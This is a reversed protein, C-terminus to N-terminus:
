LRLAGSFVLRQALDCVPYSGETEHAAVQFLERYFNVVAVVGARECEHALHPVIAAIELDRAISRQEIVLELHHQEPPLIRHAVQPVKDAYDHVAQLPHFPHVDQASMLEVERRDPISAVVDLYIAFVRAM